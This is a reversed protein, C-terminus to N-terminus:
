VGFCAPRQDLVMAAAAEKRNEWVHEGDDATGYRINYSMVKLTAKNETKCAVCLPLLAALLLM